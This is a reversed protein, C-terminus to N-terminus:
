RRGIRQAILNRLNIALNPNQLDAASLQVSAHSEDTGFFESFAGGRKDIQFIVEIGQPNPRLYAELEDLRGRFEGTPRFEFEQVFPFRGGFKHTYECDVKFLSFGISQIANLVSETHPHPAVQIQDTDNPDFIASTELTTQLYVRNWGMMTVPTEFPLQIAFPISKEERPQITFRDFLKHEALVSSETKQYDDNERTYEAVVRLYLEDITTADDAGSIFVDGELVGGQRVAGGRLRADVKANGFGIKKFLSKFM